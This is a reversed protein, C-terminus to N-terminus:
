SLAKKRSLQQIVVRALKGLLGALLPIIVLLQTLILSFVIWVRHESGGFAYCYANMGAYASPVFIALQVLGWRFGILFAVVSLLSQGIILGADSDFPEFRESVLSVVGWSMAGAALGLLITVAARKM